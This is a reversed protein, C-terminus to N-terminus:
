TEPPKFGAGIRSAKEQIGKFEALTWPRVTEVKSLAWGRMRKTGWRTARGNGMAVPFKLLETQYLRRGAADSFLGAHSVRTVNCRPWTWAILIKLSWALFAAFTVLTVSELAYKM